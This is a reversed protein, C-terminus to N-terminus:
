GGDKLLAPISTSLNLGNDIFIKFPPAQPFLATALTRAM